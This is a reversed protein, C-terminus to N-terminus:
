SGYHNGNKFCFFFCVETFDEDDPSMLNASGELADEESLKQTYSLNTVCLFFLIGLLLSAKARM